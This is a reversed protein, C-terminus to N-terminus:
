WLLVGSTLVANTHTSKSTITSRPRATALPKPARNLFPCRVWTWVSSSLIQPTLYHTEM